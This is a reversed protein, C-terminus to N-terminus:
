VRVAPPIAGHEVFADMGQYDIHTSNCGPCRYEVPQASPRAFRM